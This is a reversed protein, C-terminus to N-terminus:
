QQQCQRDGDEDDEDESSDSTDADPIPQLPWVDSRGRSRRDWVQRPLQARRQKIVDLLDRDTGQLANWALITDVYGFKKDDGIEIGGERTLMDIYIAQPMRRNCMTELVTQAYYNTFRGSDDLRWPFHDSSMGPVHQFKSSRSPMRRFKSVVDHVEKRIFKRVVAGKDVANALSVIHYKQDHPLRSFCGLADLVPNDFSGPLHNEIVAAADLAMRSQGTFEHWDSCLLVLRRNHAVLTQIPTHDLPTNQHDVVLNGFMRLIRRYFQQKMAVSTDPYQADGTAKENGHRSLWVVVIEGPHAQLWQHVHHLYGEALGDTEMGHVGVWRHHSYIVRFDLFRIGADLQEVIDIVQCKCLKRVENMAIDKLPWSELPGLNPLSDGSAKDCSLDYTLTNHSGPLCLEWLTLHGIAPMMDAMWNSLFNGARIHGWNRGHRQLGQEDQSAPLAITEMSCLCWHASGHPERKHKAVYVIDQDNPGYGCKANDFDDTRGILELDMNKVTTPLQSRKIRDSLTPLPLLGGAKLVDRIDDGVIGFAM